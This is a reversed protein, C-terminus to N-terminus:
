TEEVADTVSTETKMMKVQQHCSSMDQALDSGGSPGQQFDSPTYVDTIGTEGLSSTLNEIENEQNSEESRKLIHPDMDAEYMFGGDVGACEGQQRNGKVSDEQKQISKGDSNVSLSEEVATQSIKENDMKQLGQLKMGKDEYIVGIEEEVHLDQDPKSIGRAQYSDSVSDFTDQQINVGQGLSSLIQAEDQSGSRSNGRNKRAESGDDAGARDSDPDKQEMPDDLKKDALKQIGGMEDGAMGKKSHVEKDLWFDKAKFNFEKSRFLYRDIAGKRAEDQDLDLLSRLVVIISCTSDQNNGVLKVNQLHITQKEDTVHLQVADFFAQVSVDLPIGLGGSGLIPFSLSRLWLQKNAVQLCNLYTCTLIHSTSDSENERWTPPVAHLVFDVQSDLAGGACTKTVQSIELPGQRTVYNRCEDMLGRGAMRAIASSIGYTNSLTRNTPNVIADSQEKVIDGLIVKVQLCGVYADFTLPMDGFDSHLLEIGKPSPCRPRTVPFDPVSIEPSSSRDNLFQAALEDDTDDSDFGGHQPYSSTWMDRGRLPNDLLPIHADSKGFVQKKNFHSTGFEKPEQSAPLHKARYKKESSDETQPINSEFPQYHFSTATDAPRNINWAIKSHEGRKSPINPTTPSLINCKSVPDEGKGLGGPTVKENFVSELYNWAWELQYWNGIMTYNMSDPDFNVDLEGEFQLIDLFSSNQDLMQTVEQELEVSVKSFINKPLSEVMIDCNKIKHRRSTIGTIVNKDTFIVVATHNLLPFFIKSVQGGGNRPNSFYVKIDSQSIGPTLGRVKVGGLAMHDKDM